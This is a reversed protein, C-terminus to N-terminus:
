NLVLFQVRLEEVDHEVVFFLFYRELMCRKPLYVEDYAVREALFFFCYEDTIFDREEPQKLEHIVVKCHACV